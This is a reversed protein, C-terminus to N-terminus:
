LMVWALVLAILLGITIGTLFLSVYRGTSERREKRLVREKCGCSLYQKGDRIAQYLYTDLSTDIIRCCNCCIARM